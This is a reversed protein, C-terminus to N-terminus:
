LRKVIISRENYQPNFKTYCNLKVVLDKMLQDEVTKYVDPFLVMRKNGELTEVNIFAMEEKKKTELVKFSTIVGATQVTEYDGLYEWGIPQALGDLPNGSIYLGLLEKETELKAKETFLNIDDSLDDKDGRIMYFTQLIDMRNIADKGLEDLAGSRALVNATKKNLQRKPVTEVIQELSEFPRSDMIHQIAAAGLGKIGALGFRLNDGEVTFGYGSKNIDPPLISIGMRKADNIYNVVKDSDGSFITLLGAMFEVPYYRKFYATQYAIYAYAAAHSKNFAYGAFPRIDECIRNAVSIEVNHEVLRKHLEELAPELIEKKKKGVAKRLVDAEGKSYGAMLQSVQMVQEQYIMIGFTNKTIMDYSPHVSPIEALGNARRQYEPIYDMPGPRYLAVGAMLTDFDVRNIGKFMKKM